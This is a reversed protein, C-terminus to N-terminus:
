AFSNTSPPLKAAAIIMIAAMCAQALNCSFLRHMLYSRMSAQSRPITNVAEGGSPGVQPLFAAAAAGVLAVAALSAVGGAIGNAVAGLEFSYRFRCCLRILDRAVM